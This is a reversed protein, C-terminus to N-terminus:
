LNGQQTSLHTIMSHQRCRSGKIHGAHMVPVKYPLIPCVQLPVTLLAAATEQGASATQRRTQCRVTHQQAFRDQLISCIRLQVLVVQVQMTRLVLELM